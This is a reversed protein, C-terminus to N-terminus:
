KQWTGLVTAAEFYNQASDSEDLRSAQDFQGLPRAVLELKVVAEGQAAPLNYAFRVSDGDARLVAEGGYLRYFSTGDALTFRLSLDHAWYFAGSREEYLTAYDAAVSPDLAGLVNGVYSIPAEVFAEGGRIVAGSFMVVPVEAEVVRNWEEPAHLAFANTAEDYRLLEFGPGAENWRMLPRGSEEPLTFARTAGGAMGGAYPVTGTVDSESGLTMRLLRAAEYDSYPDFWSGEPVCSGARQMPSQRELDDCSPSLLHGTMQDLAWRDGFGGRERQVGEYPYETDGGDWHPFGWAHGLEHNMILGLDDGTGRQGGALGGGLEVALDAYWTSTERVGNAERFTDLTSLVASMTGFGSHQTCSGASEDESSCHPNQDIFMQPHSASAGSPTYGDDRAEILLHAPRWAGFPSDGVDLYSVPLRALFELWRAESGPENTGEGFLRADVVYLTLWSAPKVSIAFTESAQGIGVRVSLGPKVWAAPLSGRYTSAELDQTSAPLQAPGELCIALEQGDLLATAIMAPAAGSGSAAVAVTLPRDASVTQFPWGVPTLHTQGFLVESSAVTGAGSLACPPAAVPPDPIRLRTPRLPGTPWSPAVGGVGATSSGAAGGASTGSSAQGGSAGGGVMGAGASGPAGGM